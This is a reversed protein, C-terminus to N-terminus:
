RGPMAEYLPLYAPLCGVQDSERARLGADFTHSVFTIGVVGGGGVGGFTTRGPHPGRRARRGQLDPVPRPREQHLPQGGRHLAAAPVHLLRLGM